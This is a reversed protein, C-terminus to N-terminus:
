SIKILTPGTIVLTFIIIIFNTIIYIGCLCEVAAMGRESEAVAHRADNDAETGAASELILVHCAGGHQQAVLVEQYYRVDVRLGSCQCGMDRGFIALQGRLGDRGVTTGIGGRAEDLSVFGQQRRLVHAPFREDPHAEGIALLPFIHCLVAAQQFASVFVDVVHGHLRVAHGHRYGVAVHGPLVADKGRLDVALLKPQYARCFVELTKSVIHVASLLVEIGQLRRVDVQTANVIPLRDTRLVGTIRPWKEANIVTVSVSDGM